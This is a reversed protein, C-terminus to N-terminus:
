ESLDVAYYKRGGNSTIASIFLVKDQSNATSQIIREVEAPTSVSQNNIKLIVFGKQIGEKHFKGSNDVGAVEVGYSIGLQKKKDATLEKFAAGVTGIADEKKVVSTSGTSTKLTVDFSKTASGRVVELKVKEGPRFRNVQDQLESVSRVKVGNVSTIVDGEEVGAQKAPSMEAFGGVYAGENVKIDKTKEPNAEKAINMDQIMVGLVARQVTGFEKIDAVVKGAISIPVAFGYGTFDGTQSYIATNIGVLEGNTNVLAGGSNGRNIAADTQIYSQINAPGSSGIGGRGKASVIGATVTSTLNFPNGVALVWEGVKLNDSNGFPIYPFEKGEIKLLAIDTQPDTGILKATYKSNDNLTVEIEDAKDIVHNNTVIYGDKNIIVGSGFGVSPQPNSYGGGGDRDGFGFFYEFPDIMRQRGQGQPAQAKVTSKIHVVAHISNEAAKTFDPYGDATLSALRVGKQDFEAGYNYSDSSSYNRKSEMYSYTAYTAGGSILAALALVSLIKGFNKM